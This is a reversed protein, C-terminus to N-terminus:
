IVVAAYNTSRKLEKFPVPASKHRRDFGMAGKSGTRRDSIQLQASRYGVRKRWYWETNYRSRAVMTSHLNRKSFDIIVRCSETV